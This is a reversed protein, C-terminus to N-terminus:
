KGKCATILWPVNERNIVYIDAKANLAARREKDTGVAVSVKLHSLHDWKKVESPWVSRAVRLPAIVLVKKIISANILDSIATLTTATKGLGM